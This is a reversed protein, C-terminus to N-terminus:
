KGCVKQALPKLISSLSNLSFDSLLFVHISDPDSAVSNLEDIDLSSGVGVAFIEIGNAKANVAAQITADKDNSMGDTIVVVGHPVGQRGNQILQQHALNIAAATNTRGPTFPIQTIAQKFDNPDNIAGLEVNVSADNSFTIIGFRAESSGIQFESTFESVFQKVREFDSPVISGSSDIVVILDIQGGCSHDVHFMCTLYALIIIIIRVTM